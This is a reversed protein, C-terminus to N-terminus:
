EATGTAISGTNNIVNNQKFSVCHKDMLLSEQFTLCSHKRFVISLLCYVVKIRSLRLIEFQNICPRTGLQLLMAQMYYTPLTGPSGHVTVWGGQEGMNEGHGILFRDAHDSEERGGGMICVCKEENSSLRLQDTREDFKPSQLNYYINNNPLEFNIM